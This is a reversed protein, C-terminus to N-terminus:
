VDASVRGFSARGRVMPCGTYASWSPGACAFAKRWVRPASERLNEASSPYRMLGSLMNKSGQPSGM